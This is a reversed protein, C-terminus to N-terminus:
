SPPTNHLSLAINLSYEGARGRQPAHTGRTHWSLHASLQPPYFWRLLWSCSVAGGDCACELPWVAEPLVTRLFAARHDWEWGEWNDRIHTSSSVWQEAPFELICTVDRTSCNVQDRSGYRCCLHRRQRLMNSWAPGSEWKQRESVSTRESRVQLSSVSIDM